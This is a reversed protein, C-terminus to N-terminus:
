VVSFNADAACAAALPDLVGRVVRAAREAAGDAMRDHDRRQVAGILQREFLFGVGADDGSRRRGLDRVIGVRLGVGGRARRRLFRGRDLAHISEEDPFGLADAPEALFDDRIREHRALFLRVLQPRQPV